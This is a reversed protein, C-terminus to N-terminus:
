RLQMIEKAKLIELYAGAANWRSELVQLSQKLAILAQMSADNYTEQNMEMYLVISSYTLHLMFPSIYEAHMGLGSVFDNSVRAMEKAIGIVSEKKNSSNESDALILLASYCTATQSCFELERVKSEVESLKVLALLTRRLQAAEEDHFSPDVTRDSVHRLVRGLLYTAQAFRAFRGMSFSSPSTVTFLPGSYEIASNWVEDDMPLISASDPDGIALMRTPNGVNVFRDLILVAWWARKREESEIWDCAIISERLGKEDFGFAIAFRACTGISLYAQPYIAHGLEYLAILIAAQLVQLNYIGAAEVEAYFKKAALYAPAKAPHVDLTKPYSLTILRICLLLLSNEARPESLPNLIYTYFRQKSIFCMYPHVTEFYRSAVPHNASLDGILIQVYRPVPLRAVPVNLHSSRFMKTDLFFVAPFGSQIGRSGTFNTIARAEHDKDETTRAPHLKKSSNGENYECIVSRKKCYSCGPVRKDCRRKQSKCSLCARLARRGTISAPQELMTAPSFQM